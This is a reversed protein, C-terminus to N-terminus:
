QHPTRINGPVFPRMLPDSLLLLIRIIIIRNHPKISYPLSNIIFMFYCLVECGYLIM